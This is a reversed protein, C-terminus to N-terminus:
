GGELSFAWKGELPLHLWVLYFVSGLGWGGGNASRAAASGEASVLACEEGRTRPVPVRFLFRSPVIETGAQFAGTPLLGTFTLM